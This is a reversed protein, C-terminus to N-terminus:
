IDLVLGKHNSLLGYKASLVDYSGREVIQGENFAVIESAKKISEIKNSLIICTKGKMIRDLSEQVLKETKVDFGSTVDDVILVRSNTRIARAIGIRQMQSTSLDGGKSGIERAFGFDETRNNEENSNIFEISNNFFNIEFFDTYFYWQQCHFEFCM